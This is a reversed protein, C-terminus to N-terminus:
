FSSSERTRWRRSNCVTVRASENRKAVSISNKGCVWCRPKTNRSLEIEKSWRGSGRRSNLSRPLMRSMPTHKRYRMGCMRQWQSFCIRKALPQSWPTSWAHPSSPTKPDGNRPHQQMPPPPWRTKGTLFGLKGKGNIVFKITQAWERYNKGNLKEVIFHLPSNDFAGTSGM